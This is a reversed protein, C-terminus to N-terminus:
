DQWIYRWVPRLGPDSGEPPLIEDQWRLQRSLQMLHHFNDRGRVKVDVIVSTGLIQSSQISEVVELGELYAQVNMFVAYSSVGDIQLTLLETQQASASDTAYSAALYRIAESVAADFVAQASEGRTQFHHLQEALIITWQGSLQPVAGTLLGLLLGDVRQREAWPKLAEWDSSELAQRAEVSYQGVDAMKLPLGRLDRQWPQVPESHDYPLQLWQGAERDAVMVLLEPRTLPWVPLEARAMLGDVAAASFLLYLSWPADPNEPAHAHYAFESVAADATACLQRVQGNNSLDQGSLRELVQVMARQAGAKRDAESQSAVPVTAAYPNELRAAVAHNLLFATVLLLLCRM